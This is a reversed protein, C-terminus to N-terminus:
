RSGAQHASDEATGELAGKSDVGECTTSGIAEGITFAEHRAPSLAGLASMLRGVTEQSEEHVASLINRLYDMDTNLQELAMAYLQATEETNPASVQGVDSPPQLQQAGAFPGIKLPLVNRDLLARVVDRVVTELWEEAMEDLLMRVGEEADTDDIPIIAGQAANPCPGRGGGGGSSNNNGAGQYGEAVATSALTDLTLPLEMLMEGVERIASSPAVQGQTYLGLLKATSAARGQVGESGIFKNEVQNGWCPLTAYGDVKALIPQTIGSLISLQTAQQVDALELKLPTWLRTQLDARLIGASTPYLEHMTGSSLRDEVTKQAKVLLPQIRQRYLYLRQLLVHQSTGPTPQLQQVFTKSLQAHLATTCRASIKEPFYVLVEQAAQMLVHSLSDDDSTATSSSSALIRKLPQACFVSVPACVRDAYRELVAEEQFLSAFLALARHTVERALAELPDKASAAVASLASPTAGSASIKIRQTAAFCAVFDKNTTATQKTLLPQLVAQVPAHLKKLLVALVDLVQAACPNDEVARSCAPASQANPSPADKGSKQLASAGTSSVDKECSVCTSQQPGNGKDSDGTASAASVAAGGDAVAAAAGRMLNSLFALEQSLFAGDDPIIEDRLLEAVAAAVSARGGEVGENGKSSAARLKAEQQEAIQAAAQEGYRRLVADARGISQLTTILRTGRELQHVRLCAVCEEELAQEIYQEFQGLQAKYHEGFTGDVAAIENLDERAHRIIAAVEDLDRQRTATGTKLLDASPTPYPGENSKRSNGQLANGAQAERHDVLYQINRISEEVRAAKELLRMCKRLKTESAKCSHLHAVYTESNASVAPQLVTEILQLQGTLEEAETSMRSLEMTTRPLRVLTSSILDAISASLEQSHTQVRAHLLQAVQEEVQLPKPATSPAAVKSGTEGSATSTGKATDLVRSLAANLWRKVDIDNRSLQRLDDTIINGVKAMCAPSLSLVGAGLNPDAAPPAAALTNHSSPNAPPRQLDSAAPISRVPPPPSSFLAKEVSSSSPSGSM